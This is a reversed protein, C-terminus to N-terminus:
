HVNLVGELFNGRWLHSSLHQELTDHPPRYHKNAKSGECIILGQDLLTRLAAQVTRSNLRPLEGDLLIESATRKGSMILNYVRKTADGSRRGSNSNGSM